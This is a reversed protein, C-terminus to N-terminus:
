FFSFRKRREEVMRENKRANNEERISASMDQLNLALNLVACMGSETDYWMCQDGICQFFKEGCAEGAGFTMPCCKPDAM